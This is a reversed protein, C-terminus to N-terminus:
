WRPHRTQRGRRKRRRPRLPMKKWRRWWRHTEQTKMERLNRTPSPHWRQIQTSPKAPASRKKPEERVSDSALTEAAKAPTDSIVQLSLIGSFFLVILTSRVPSPIVTNDQSGSAATTDEM